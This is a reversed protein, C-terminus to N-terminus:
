REYRKFLLQLAEEALKQATTDNEVAMLRLRRHVAPDLRLLLAKRPPAAERPARPTAGGGAVRNLASSLDDKSMATGGDDMPVAGRAGGLGEIAPRVGPRDTWCHLRPCPRYAPPADGAGGRRGPRGDGATGASRAPGPGAGRKLVVWAPVGALQSVDLSAGIAHLDAVSARCPVLILDAARAAALAADSAHPATDIVALDAGGIRAADLVRALRPAHAAVVVPRDAERLDGGCVRRGKRTWTSWSPAGAPSSM